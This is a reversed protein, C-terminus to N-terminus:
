DSYLNLQGLESQYYPSPYPTYFTYCLSSILKTQCSYMLPLPRHISTLIIDFIIEFPYSQLIHVPTMQSPVSIQVCYCVKDEM